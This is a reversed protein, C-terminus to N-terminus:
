KEFKQVKEFIMTKEGVIKILDCGIIVIVDKDLAKICRIICLM